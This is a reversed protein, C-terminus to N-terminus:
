KKSADSIVGEPMFSFFNYAVVNWFALMKDRAAGVAHKGVVLGNGEEQTGKFASASATTRITIKGRMVYTCFVFHEKECGGGPSSM